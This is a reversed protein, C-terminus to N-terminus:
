QEYRIIFRCLHIFSVLNLSEVKVQKIENQYIFIKEKLWQLNDFYKSVQFFYKLMMETINLNSLRYFHDLFKMQEM